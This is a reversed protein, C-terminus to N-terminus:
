GTSLTRVGLADLVGRAYDVLAAHGPADYPLFEIRECV